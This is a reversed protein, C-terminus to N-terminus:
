NINKMANRLIRDADKLIDNSYKSVFECLFEEEEETLNYGYSYVFAHTVEHVTVDRNLYYGLNKKIYICLNNRDCIGITYSGDNRRLLSNNNTHIIKWELGNIMLRIM